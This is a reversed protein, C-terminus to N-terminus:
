FTSSDIGQGRTLMVGRIAFDILVLVAGSGPVIYRHAKNM